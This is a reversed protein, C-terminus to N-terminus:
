QGMTYEFYSKFEEHTDIGAKLRMQRCRLSGPKFDGCISPREPDEYKACLKQGDASETLAGCDTTLKYNQMENGGPKKVGLFPLLRRRSPQSVVEQQVLGTGQQRMVEAESPKLEMRVGSRCCLAACTQCTVQKVSTIQEKPSIDYDLLAEVPSIQPLTSAMDMFARDQQTVQVPPEAAEASFWSARLAESAYTGM